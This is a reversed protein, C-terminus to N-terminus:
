KIKQLSSILFEKLKKNIAKIQISEQKKTALIQSDNRLPNATFVVICISNNGYKNYGNSEMATVPDIKIVTAMAKSRYM